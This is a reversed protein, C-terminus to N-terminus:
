EIFEDNEWKGDYRRGDSAIYVGRGHRANAAFDGEYTEGSAWFLKGKGHAKGDKVEGEYRSGDALKIVQRAPTAVPKRYSEALSKMCDTIGIIKKALANGKDILTLDYSAKEINEDVIKYVADLEKGLREYTELFGEAKAADDDNFTEYIKFAAGFIDSTTKLIKGWEGFQQGVYDCLEQTVKGGGKILDDSREKMDLLKQSIENGKQLAEKPCPDKKAGWIIDNAITDHEKLLSEITKLYKEAIIKVDPKCYIIHLKLSNEALQAAYRAKDWEDFTKLVAKDLAKLNEKTMKEMFGTFEIAKGHFNKLYSHDYVKDDEAQKKDKKGFLGM